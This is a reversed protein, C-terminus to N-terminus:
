APIESIEPSFLFNPKAWGRSKGRSGFIFRSTKKSTLHAAFKMPSTRCSRMDQKAVIHINFGPLCQRWTKRKMFPDSVIDPRKVRVKAEGQGMVSWNLQFDFKDLYLLQGCMDVQRLPPHVQLMKLDVLQLWPWLTDRWAGERHHSLIAIIEGVPSLSLIQRWWWCCCCCFCGGILRFFRPLAPAM